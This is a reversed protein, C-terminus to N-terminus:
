PNGDPDLPSARQRRESRSPVRRDHHSDVPDLFGVFGLVVATIPLGGGPMLGSILAIPLVALMGLMPGPTFLHAAAAIAAELMSM